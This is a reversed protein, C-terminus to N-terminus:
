QPQDGRSLQQQCNHARNRPEPIAAHNELTEDGGPLLCYISNLGRLVLLIVSQDEESSLFRLAMVEGVWMMCGCLVISLPMRQAAKGCTCLSLVKLREVTPGFIQRLLGNHADEKGGWYAWLVSHSPLGWDGGAFQTLSIRLAGLGRLM